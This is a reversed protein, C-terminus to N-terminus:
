HILHWPSEFPSGASVHILQRTLFRMHKIILTLLLLLLLIGPTPPKLFVTTRNSKKKPPLCVLVALYRLVLVSLWHPVASYQSSSFQINTIFVTELLSAVMLALSLSFFTDAPFLLLLLSSEAADLLTHKVHMSTVKNESRIRSITNVNFGSFGTIWIRTCMIRVTELIRVMQVSTHRRHQSFCIMVLTWTFVNISANKYLTSGLPPNANPNYLQQPLDQKDSGLTNFPQNVCVTFYNYIYKRERRWNGGFNCGCCWWGVACM